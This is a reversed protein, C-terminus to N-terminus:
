ISNLDSPTLISHRNHQSNPMTRLKAHIDARASNGQANTNATTRAHTRAHTHTRTRTHAHRHVHRCMHTPHAHARTPSPPNLPLSKSLVKELMDKKDKFKRQSSLDNMVAECQKKIVPDKFYSSLTKKGRFLINLRVSRFADFTAVQARADFSNIVRFTDNKYKQTLENYYERLRHPCIMGNAHYHHVKLM